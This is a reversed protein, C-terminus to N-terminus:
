KKKYVMANGHVKNNTRGTKMVYIDGGLKEAKKSLDAKADSVSTGNSTSVEGVEVYQTKVKEFDKQTMMDAAFSCVPLTFAIIGLILKKM